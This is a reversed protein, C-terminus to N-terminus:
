NAPPTMSVPPVSQFTYLYMDERIKSFIFHSIDSFFYDPAKTFIIKFVLLRLVSDRSFNIAKKEEYVYILNYFRREWNFM